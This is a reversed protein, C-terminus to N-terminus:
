DRRTVSRKTDNINNKAYPLKRFYTSKYICSSYQKNFRRTAFIDVDGVLKNEHNEETGAYSGEYHAPV